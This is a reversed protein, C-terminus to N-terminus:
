INERKMNSTENEISNFNELISFAETVSNAIRFTDSFNEKVFGSDRMAQILDILKGYFGNLNLIVIPKKHLGLQGWTIVEFLEDMTGFGGPLVMIGDSLFYMEAKREHMTDVLILESLREHAAEKNRLFHPLIGIVKGNNNLVADAVAGMLGYKAGGYILVIDDQAIRKGVETACHKFVSDKGESSGCFVALSKM